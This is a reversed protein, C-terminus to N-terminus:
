ENKKARAVKKAPAAKKVPAKAPSAAKAPAVKKLPRVEIADALNRLRAAKAREARLGSTDPNGMADSVVSGTDLRDAQWRLARAAAPRTARRADVADSIDQEDMARLHSEDLRKATPAAKKVIPRESAAQAPVASAAKKVVAKKAPAPAAEPAAAATKK